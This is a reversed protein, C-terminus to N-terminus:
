PTDGAPQTMVLLLAVSASQIMRLFTLLSQNRSWRASPRQREIAIIVRGATRIMAELDKCAERMADEAGPIACGTPSPEHLRANEHIAGLNYVTRYWLRNTSLAGPVRGAVRETEAKVAEMMAIAAAHCGRGAEMSGLNFLAGTNFPDLDLAERYARRAHEKSSRAQWDVGFRFLAYSKWDRTLLVPQQGWRLSILQYTAWAGIATGLRRKRMTDEVTPPTPEDKEKEPEDAKPTDTTSGTKLAVQVHVDATTSPPDAGDSTSVVTGKGDPVPKDGKAAGAAAAPTETKAPPATPVPMGLNPRLVGYASEQIVQSSLLRGLPSFLRAIAVLDSPNDSEFRIELRYTRRVLSGLSAVLSSGAAVPALTAAPIDVEHDVGEVVELGYKGADRFLEFERAVATSLTLDIEDPNAANSIIRVRAERRRGIMVILLWGIVVAIAFNTLTFL